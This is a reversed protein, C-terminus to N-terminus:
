KNTEVEMNRGDSMFTITGHDITSLIEKSYKQLRGLAEPNPHGYKNDRGASIVVYEPKIYSLLQEGSSTKSGHHGAKYVTIKKPLRGSSVLSAEYAIPLDGTLLFTQEGYVIVLSVSASNTEKFTEGARPHLIAATVGDQFDIVDGRRAVHINAGEEEMKTDLDAFVATDSKMGSIVLVNVAYKELVPILGTVHDADGHTAVMVDIDRDFYNMQENLRELVINSAGGDILMEHGSPTQILISDGQGIDLFTIRLKRPTVSFVIVVVCAFIIFSFLIISSVKGYERSFVKVKERAGFWREKM